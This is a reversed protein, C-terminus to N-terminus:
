RDKGEAAAICGVTLATGSLVAARSIDLYVARGCQVCIAQEKGTGLDPGAAHWPGLDHGRDIAQVRGRSRELALRSELAAAQRRAERDRTAAEDAERQERAERDADLERGTTLTEFIEILQRSTQRYWEREIPPLTSLPRPAAGDRCSVADALVQAARHMAVDRRLRATLDTAQDHETM